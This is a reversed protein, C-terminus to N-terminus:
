YKKGYKLKRHKLYYIKHYEIDKRKFEESSRYNHIREKARDSTYYHVGCFGTTNNKRLVRGCKTCRKPRRMNYNIGNM